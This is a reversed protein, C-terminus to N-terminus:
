DCNTFRELKSNIIALFNQMYGALIGSRNEPFKAVLRLAELSQLNKESAIDQRIYRSFNIMFYCYSVRIIMALEINWPTVDCYKMEFWLFSLYLVNGLIHVRSQKAKNQQWWILM